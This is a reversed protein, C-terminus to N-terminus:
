RIQDRCLCFYSLFAFNQWISFGSPLDSVFTFLLILDVLGSSIWLECLDWGTLLVLLECPHTCACWCVCGSSDGFHCWTKSDVLSALLPGYLVKKMVFGLWEDVLWGCSALVCSCWSCLVSYNHHGQMGSCTTTHWDNIYCERLVLGCINCGESYYLLVYCTWLENM